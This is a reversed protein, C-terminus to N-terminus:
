LELTKVGSMSTIVGVRFDNYWLALQYFMGEITTSQLYLLLLGKVQCTECIVHLLKIKWGNGTQGIRHALRPM